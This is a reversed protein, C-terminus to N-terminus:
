PSTEGLLKDIDALKKRAEAMMIETADAPSIAGDAPKASAPLAPGRSAAVADPAGHGEAAAPEASARVSDTTNSAEVARPATALDPVASPEVVPAAASGGVPEDPRAMMEAAIASAADLLQQDKDSLRSRDILALKALVDDVTDSTVSSLSSYLLARPDDRGEAKASAFASLETLGDIAAQRAIRLYIVKERETDMMGAIEGIADLDLDAHLAIVGAVFADAFQAAYPSRLYFRVYQTSAHTFRKADGLTIQLSISRRLAAEEVLTGPALLRAQDLLALATQPQDVALISGKVLALYTGLEPTQALPEIAALADQAAKQQGLVYALVGDALRRNPDDKSLKSLAMEVTAPNGGSMAYVLLARLNLPETLETADTIRFRADAMELLKRQMPLAAHDGGAIRDQVLELSRVMQFPKLGGEAHAAAALATALLALGAGASLRCATV